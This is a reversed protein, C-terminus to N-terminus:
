DEYYSPNLKKGWKQGLIEFTREIEHAYQGEYVHVQRSIVEDTDENFETVTILLAM